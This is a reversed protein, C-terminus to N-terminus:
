DTAPWGDTTMFELWRRYFSRQPGEGVPQPTITGPYVPDPGDHGLGMQYNYQQRRVMPGAMGSQVSSWSEGDDSDALGLPWVHFCRTMAAKVEPPAAADVLCWRWFEFHDVGKPHCVGISTNGFVAGLYTFTPFVLGATSSPGRSREAGLRNAVEDNTSEYYDAVLQHDKTLTGLVGILAKKSLFFGAAGHGGRDSFQRGAATMSSIFRAPPASGPEAWAAMASVHAFVAHYNDGTFQEAILKWNGHMRIKHVGGIVETGGERRDVLCDLYWAADGLYELLPPADPEFTAFILGKYQEVRPVTLLGWRSTDLEGHYATDHLPVNVLRGGVDYTWGHFPCSFARANGADARCVNMGRHRCANLLVSVSGDAQRVALVPDAGMFTTIFDGTRAFQSTHGIYLWTRPFLRESEQQHLKPDVFLHGSILGQQWDVLQDLPADPSLLDRM